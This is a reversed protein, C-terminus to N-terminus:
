DLIRVWENSLIELIEVHCRVEIDGLVHNFSFVDWDSLLTLLELM